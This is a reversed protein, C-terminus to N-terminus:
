CLFDCLFVTEVFFIFRIKIEIEIHFLIIVYLIVYFFWKYELIGAPCHETTSYYLKLLAKCLININIRNDCQCTQVHCETSLKDIISSPNFISSERFPLKIM